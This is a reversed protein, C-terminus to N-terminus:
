YGYRYINLKHILYIQVFLDAELFFVPGSIVLGIFVYKSFRCNSSYIVIYLVIDAVITQRSVNFSLGDYHRWVIQCNNRTRHTWFRYYPPQLTITPDM